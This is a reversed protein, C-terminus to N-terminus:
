DIQKFRNIMTNTRCVRFLADRPGRDEKATKELEEIKTSVKIQNINPLDQTLFDMQAQYKKM